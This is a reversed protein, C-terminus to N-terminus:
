PVIYGAATKGPWRSRTYNWTSLAERFITGTPFWYDPNSSERDSKVEAHGDFFVLNGFCDGVVAASQRYGHRFGLRRTDNKTGALMENRSREGPATSLDLEKSSSEWPGVGGFAGGYNGTLSLDFDPQDSASAYRHGEFVAVKASAQGIRYQNPQYGRRDNSRPATGVPPAAESSTFQTSMNYAIMKGTGVNPPPSGFTAFSQANNSPCQFYQSTRYWNFRAGRATEDQTAQGDNPAEWGMHKAVPGMWDFTQIATGNFRPAFLKTYAGGTSAPLCEFGSGLPNGPMGDKNDTGYTAIAVGLQRVNSSCVVTKASDRASALAPLLISVLLAIIAIVVLLEILTFAERVTRVSSRDTHRNM